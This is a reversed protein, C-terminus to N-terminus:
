SSVSDELRVIAYLLVENDEQGQAGSHTEMVAPFLTAKVLAQAHEKDARECGVMTTPNFKVNLRPWRFQRSGSRLRLQGALRLALIFAERLKTLWTDRGEEPVRLGNTVFFIRIMDNFQYALACACDIYGAEENAFHQKSSM